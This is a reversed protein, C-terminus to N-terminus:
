QVFGVSKTAIFRASGSTEITESTAMEVVDVDVFLSVGVVGACLEEEVGGGERLIEAEGLCFTSYLYFLKSM